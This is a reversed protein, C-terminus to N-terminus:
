QGQISFSNRLVLQPIPLCQLNSFPNLLRSCHEGQLRGGSGGLAGSAPKARTPVEQGLKGSSTSVSSPSFTNRNSASGCRINARQQVRLCSSIRLSVLRGLPALRFLSCGIGISRGLPRPNLVFEAQALRRASGSTTIIITNTAVITTAATTINITHDIAM